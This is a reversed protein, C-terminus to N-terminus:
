YASPWLVSFALNWWIGSCSSGNGQFGKKCTCSYSGQINKCKANKDCTDNKCEDIDLFFFRPKVKAQQVVHVNRNLNVCPSM